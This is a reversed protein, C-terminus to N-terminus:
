WTTTSPFVMLEGFLWSLLLWLFVGFCHLNRLLEWYGIVTNKQLNTEDETFIFLLWRGECPPITVESSQSSVRVSLSPQCRLHAVCFFFFGVGRFIVHFMDEHLNPLDNEKRFPHNTPEMNIKWPTNSKPIGNYQNNLFPDTGNSTIIIGIYSPVVIGIYSPLICWM